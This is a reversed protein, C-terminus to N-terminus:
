TMLGCLEIHIYDSFRHNYELRVQRKLDLMLAVEERFGGEHGLRLGAFRVAREEDSPYKRVYRIWRGM